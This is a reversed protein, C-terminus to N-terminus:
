ETVTVTLGLECRSVTATHGLSMSIENGLQTMNRLFDGNSKLTFRVEGLFIDIPKQIM